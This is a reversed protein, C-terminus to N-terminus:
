LAGADRADREADGEDRRIELDGGDADDALREIQDFTKDFGDPDTNDLFHVQMADGATGLAQSIFQPGLASGGIGILLVDTFKASGATIKAATSIRPSIGSTRGRRISRM